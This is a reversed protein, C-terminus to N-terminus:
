LRHDIDIVIHIGVVDTVATASIQFIAFDNRFRRVFPLAAIKKGFMIRELIGIQIREALLYGAGSRVVLRTGRDM